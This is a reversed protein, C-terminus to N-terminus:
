CWDLTCSMEHWEEGGWTSDAIGCDAFGFKQYMKVKAQLCTLFVEKRRNKRERRLYQYVLERGLGQRRYEPLVDLGLLMINKGNKNHLSADTFFEDRFRYEDTAIGNLFGAIKGTEKDVAVLFLEQAATIRNIMSEESCAENPPFCIQEIAIAQETESQKINRFEFRELIDKDAINYQELLKRATEKGQESLYVCKGKQPQFLLEKEELESLADFNCSEWSNELYISCENNDQFGTLYILMLTLEEIAQERSKKDM